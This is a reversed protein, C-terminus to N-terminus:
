NEVYKLEVWFEGFSTTFPIIIRTAGFLGSMKFSTGIVTTPIALEISQDHESFSIKIDGAVMNAVEGIADKVDEDLEAVNMGLFSSTVGKALSDTCHIALMGKIDGGLGIMSTLKSDINQTKGTCYDGPRVEMMIMTSFVDLTGKVLNDAIEKEKM